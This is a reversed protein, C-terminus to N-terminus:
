TKGIMRTHVRWAANSPGTPEFHSDTGLPMVEYTRTYGDDGLVRVLDGLEPEVREGQYVLDRAQIVFDTRRSSITTGDTRTIEVDVELISASFSVRSGDREYAIRGSAHQNFKRDLWAQGRALMDPM